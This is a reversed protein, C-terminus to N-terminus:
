WIEIQQYLTPLEGCHKILAKIANEYSVYKRERKVNGLKDMYIVYGKNRKLKFVIYSGKSDIYKEKIQM